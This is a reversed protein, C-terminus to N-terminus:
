HFADNSFASLELVTRPLDNYRELQAFLLDKVPVASGEFSPLGYLEDVCNFVFVSTLNGPEKKKYMKLTDIIHIDTVPFSRGIRDFEAYLLPFCFGILDIGCFDSESIFDLTMDACSELGPLHSVDSDCIGRAATVALPVPVFPNIRFSLQQEGGDPFLKFFSIEIIRDNISDTGTAVINIFVLPRALKIIPLSAINNKWNGPFFWPGLDDHCLYDTMWKNDPDFAPNLTIARLLEEWLDIDRTQDLESLSYFDSEVSLLRECEFSRFNSIIRQLKTRQDSSM